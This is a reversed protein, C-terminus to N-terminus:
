LQRIIGGTMAKDGRSYGERPGLFTQGNDNAATLRDLRLLKWNEHEGSASAGATQWVRVLVHGASSYGIAHPEVQRVGPDYTLELCRKEAIASTILDLM